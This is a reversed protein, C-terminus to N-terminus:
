ALVPMHDYGRIWRKGDAIPNRVWGQLSIGLGHDQLFQQQEGEKVYLHAMNFKCMAFFEPATTFFRGINIETPCPTGAQNYTMDIGYLGHPKPDVAQVALDAVRDAERYSSTVGVGTSGSVGTMAGTGAWSERTRQQSCVLEGRWYLQQVTVSRDSLVEAITFNGWGNHRDLWWAADAYDRAVFSQKGGAGRRPRLWASNSKHHWTMSSVAAVTNCLKTEPVTLGFDRWRKYSEWKDQCLEIVHHDPLYTKAGLMHVVSRFKSLGRVEADSQAHVFEPKEDQIVSFLANAWANYDSVPHIVHNTECESLWLADPDANTGVLEYGGALRLARCFGNSAAGGAGLVLFKV